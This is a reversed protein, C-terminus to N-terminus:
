IEVPVGLNKKPKIFDELFIGPHIEFVGRGSGKGARYL